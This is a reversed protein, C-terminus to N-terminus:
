APPRGKMAYIREIEIALAVTWRPRGSAGPRTERETGPIERARGYVIAVAGHPGWTTLAVHPNRALDRRRVANVYITSRLEGAVLEAHVPAIHPKGGTGVTAMAKLSASNWFEAFERASMRRDARDFTERVAEGARERSRDLIEQLRLFVEPPWRQPDREEPTAGAIIPQRCPKKREEM